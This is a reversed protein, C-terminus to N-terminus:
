IKKALFNNQRCGALFPPSSFLVSFGLFKKILWGNKHVDFKSSPCIFVVPDDATAMAAGL